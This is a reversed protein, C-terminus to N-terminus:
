PLWAARYFRKPFNTAARDTVQFIANSSTVNTLPAWNVLNTSADLRYPVNPFGSLTLLTNKDATRVIALFRPPVLLRFVTGWNLDGGTSTAGYFAHDRGQILTWPGFGDGATRGFVYLVQYGTGDTNLRFVASGATGYLAGDAGWTLGTEPVQDPGLPGNFLHLNTFGSGDPRIKFITGSGSTGSGNGNTGGFGTTGYLWGNTDQVLTSYPFSGDGNTASFNHLVTYGSGDTNLKFVTGNSKSGGYLATGYLASDNGQMLEAASGWGDSQDPNLNYIVAFSSGDLSLSFITGRRGPGGAWTTGYLGGDAAQVLGAEPATGDSSSNFVHVISYNGGNTDLTFIWSPGVGYTATGYLMGNTAQVLNGRPYTADSSVDPGFSHLISYGSGDTNVKYVTGFGYDGGYQTAGYLAGDRGQCVSTFVPTEGDGSFQRFNWVVDYSAGNTSISYIAGCGNTGGYFTTGYLVGNTAQVLGADSNEADGGFAGFSYLVSYNNGDTDLRFVTGLGSIGGSYTSGYLAGDTGRILGSNPGVGDSGGNIFNYLVQYNNGATDLKFVTGSGFFGGGTGGQGTTGYLYGDSGQILSDPARGDGSTNFTHLINFNGGQTDLTFVAGYSSFAATSAAIGYLAGDMGQLLGDPRTPSGSGPFNHLVAYNGGNTNLRFIAGVGAGNGGWDTTGYLLGDNGQILASNPGRGDNTAGKFSHLVFYGSGDTRMKFVIGFGNTGGNYTTGYLWEDRGQLLGAQPNRGDFPNSNFAHLVSYGSGDLAIKFVSGQGGAEFRSGTRGGAWTTGYLYGDAGQILPSTSNTGSLDPYNRGFVKLQQEIVQARGQSLLFASSLLGVVALRALVSDPIPNTSMREM